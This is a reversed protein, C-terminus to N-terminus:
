KGAHDYDLVRRAVEAWTNQRAVDRVLAWRMRVMRRVRQWPIHRPDEYEIHPVTRLLVPSIHGARVLPVAGSVAAELVCLGVSEHHTSMFVHASGLEEAWKTVPVHKRTFKQRGQEPVQVDICGGDVVHRVSVAVGTLRLSLAARITEETHDVGDHYLRHDVLVRLPADDNQRPYFLADDAAWGIQHAPPNHKWGDAGRVTFTVQVPGAVPQDHIHAVYGRCRKALERACEPPVRLFYRSVGLVIDFQDAPVSRWYRVARADEGAPPPSAYQVEAGAETLARPLFYSWMAGFSKIQDIAGVHPGVFLVRRM